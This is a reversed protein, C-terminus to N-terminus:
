TSALSRGAKYGLYGISSHVASFSLVLLQALLLTYFAVGGEVVVVVALKCFFVISVSPYTVSINLRLARNFSHINM